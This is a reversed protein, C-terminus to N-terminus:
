LFFYPPMSVLKKKSIFIGKCLPPWYDLYGYTKKKKNKLEKGQKLFLM